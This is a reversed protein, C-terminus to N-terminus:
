PTSDQEETPLPAPFAAKFRDIAAETWIATAYARVTAPLTAIKTPVWAGDAWAGPEVPVRHVNIVVGDDNLTRTIITFRGFTDPNEPTPPLTISM